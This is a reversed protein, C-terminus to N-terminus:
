PRVKFSRRALRAALECLQGVTVNKAKRYRYVFDPEFRRFGEKKPSDAATTGLVQDVDTFDFWDNYRDVLFQERKLRLEEGRGYLQHGPIVRAALRWQREQYQWGIEDQTGPVRTFAELIPWTREYGDVITAEVGHQRLHASVYQAISRTRLKEFGQDLRIPALERTLDSPMAFPTTADLAVVVVNAVQQLLEALTGYHQITQRDYSDTVHGAAAVMAAGLEGYSRYRWRHGGLECEGGAWRPDSLSLLVFEPTRQYRAAVDAAYQELQADRPPSFVKNEIVLPASDALQIVLDLQRRERETRAAGLGAEPRTWPALVQRAATTHHDVFWALFNSHFLERSGLSAHLLPERDLRLCM